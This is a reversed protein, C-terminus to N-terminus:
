RGYGYEQESPMVPLPVTQGALAHVCDGCFVIQGDTVFYHCRTQEAQAPEGDKAPLAPRFFRMSPTFSPREINGNFDWRPSTPAPHETAYFHAHECGPCWHYYGGRAKRLFPTLQTM